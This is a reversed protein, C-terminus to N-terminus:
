WSTSIVFLSSNIHPLSHLLTPSRKLDTTLVLGQDAALSEVIALTKAQVLM